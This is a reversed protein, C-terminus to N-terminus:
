EAVEGKAEMKAEAKAQIKVANGKRSMITEAETFAVM